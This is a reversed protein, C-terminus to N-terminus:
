ISSTGVLEMFEPDTKIQPNWAMDLEILDLTQKISSVYTVNIM